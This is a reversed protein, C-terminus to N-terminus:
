TLPFSEPCRRLCWVKWTHGVQSVHVYCTRLMMDGASLEGQVSTEVVPTAPRRGPRQSATQAIEARLPVKTVADGVCWLADGAITDHRCASSLRKPRLVCWM